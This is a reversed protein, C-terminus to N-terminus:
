DDVKMIGWVGNEYTAAKSGSAYCQRVILKNGDITVNSFSSAKGAGYAVCLDGNLESGSPAKGDKGGTASTMCVIGQPNKFYTIGGEAVTPTSKLAEGKANLPYSRLFVHEHAQMVLDVKLENLVGMLQEVHAAPEGARVAVLPRHLQVIKWTKTTGALDKKLWALQADDIQGDSSKIADTNLVTFHADGYDYSYFFGYNLVNNEAPYDVCFHKTIEYSLYESYAADHNGTVPMMVNNMLFEKNGNLVNRWQHLYQGYQVVDGGNVVFAANPDDKFAATLANKMYAYQTTERSTSVQTDSTFVFSFSDVKEKRTTFRGVDSWVGLDPDGVRYAYATDYALGAMVAQHSYDPLDATFNGYTFTNTKPDYPMSRSLYKTTKASASTAKAFDPEVDKACPVFQVVPNKSEKYTHWTVAHDVSAAGYFTLTIQDPVYDYDGAPNVPTPETTGSQSPETSSPKETSSASPKETSSASPETGSAEGGTIVTEKPAPLDALNALYKRLLLVDKMNVTGDVTVDAATANLQVNMGALFKRLLLVDKMNVAGDENADGYYLTEIRTTGAPQSASASETASPQAETATVSPQAETESPEAETATPQAETETPQAETETPKPNRFVSVKIYSYTITHGYEGHDATYLEGEIGWLQERIIATVTSETTTFVGTTQGHFEEWSNNEAIYLEAEGKDVYATVVVKYYEGADPDIAGNEDVDKKIERIQKFYADTKEEKITKSGPTSNEYLVTEVLGDNEATAPILALAGGFILSLVLVMSLLTYLTKRTKM